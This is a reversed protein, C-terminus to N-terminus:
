KDYHNRISRCLSIEKEYTDLIISASTSLDFGQDMLFKIWTFENEILKQDIPRTKMREQDEPFNIDWCDKYTKKKPPRINKEELSLIDILKQYFERPNCKEYERKCDPYDSPRVKRDVYWYFQMEVLKMCEDCLM